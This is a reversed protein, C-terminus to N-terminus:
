SAQAPADKLLARLTAYTRQPTSPLAPCGAEKAYERLFFRAGINLSASIDCNYRKGSPFVCLSHNGKDREVTGSGDFAYRSTGWACVRSLRMGNRHAQLEVRSQVDNARWLHIRERFRRGKTKGSRDLYEFVICDVDYLVALRLIERATDISLQRNAADLMRYIAKPKKGASQYERKRNILRNLRDEDSDLHIVGRKHVTGDAEMVCWSAPANIGLDVALIRWALPRENQVLPRQEEFSFRVRYSGRAKEVVPSLMKREKRKESIYKADSPSVLFSHWGWAKGDFLKLRIVGDELRSLDRDEEYFTLEYRGPFGIAPAAGREAAPAAEWAALNKKYSSVMGLADAIVARRMYSPFCPFASDFGPYKAPSTKPTHILVDAARRRSLVGKKQATPLASLYGWEKLFVDACLKLASLCAVSTARMLADDVRATRVGGDKAPVLQRKIPVTYCTVIKM